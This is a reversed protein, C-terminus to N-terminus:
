DAPSAAQLRVRVFEAAGVTEPFCM